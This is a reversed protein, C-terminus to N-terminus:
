IGTIVLKCPFLAKGSFWGRERPEPPRAHGLVTWEKRWFESTMKPIPQLKARDGKAVEIGFSLIMM